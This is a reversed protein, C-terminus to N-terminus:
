YLVYRTYDWHKYLKTCIPKTTKEYVHCCVFLFLVMQHLHYVLDLVPRERRSVIVFKEKIGSSKLKM